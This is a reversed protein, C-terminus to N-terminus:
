RDTLRLTVIKWPEVHFRVERGVVEVKGANALVEGLLNTEVAAIPPRHLRIVVDAAQGTTEYLRLETPPRDGRQAPRVLRMASLVVNAPSVEVLSAAEHLRVGDPLPADQGPREPKDLEALPLAGGRELGRAPSWALLPVHQEMAQRYSKADAWTGAHPALACWWHHQGRGDVSAAARGFADKPMPQFRDLIFEIALDSKKFAYGTHMGPPCIFTYGVDAASVDTWRTADYGEPFGTCFNEGRFPERELRDRSEAGFPIGAAVKGSMGIPFRICFIGNDRQATRLEVGFEIRRSNRWLRVERTVVHGGITGPITLSAFVPGQLTRCRDVAAQWDRRKGPPGVHLWSDGSPPMDYVALDGLGGTQPSGLTAGRLRTSCRWNATRGCRSAISSTRSPRPKAAKGHPTDPWVGHCSATKQAVSTSPRLGARRCTRPM